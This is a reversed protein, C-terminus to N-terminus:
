KRFIFSWSRILFLFKSLRSECINLNTQKSKESCYYQNIIGVGQHTIIRITIFKDCFLLYM